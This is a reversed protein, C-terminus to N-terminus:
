KLKRDHNHYLKNPTNANSHIRDFVSLPRMVRESSAAALDLLPGIGFVCFRAGRLCASCLSTAVFRVDDRFLVRLPLVDSCALM